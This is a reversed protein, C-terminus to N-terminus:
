HIFISIVTGIVLSSLMSSLTIETLNMKPYGWLLGVYYFSITANGVIKRIKFFTNLYAKFLDPNTIYFYYQSLTIIDIFLM